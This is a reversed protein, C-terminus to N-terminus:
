NFVIIASSPTNKKIKVRIKDLKPNILGRNFNLSFESIVCIFILLSLFGITKRHQFTFNPIANTVKTAWDNRYAQETRKSIKKSFSLAAPLATMSFVFIIMSACSALSAYERVPVLETVALAGFGIATTLATFFIPQLLNEITGLAADKGELGNSRLNYFENMVHVSVGMGIIMLTPALATTMPTFAYGAAAQIGTTIAICSAIVVWPYVMGGISRFTLFLIGIMILAMTPNIWAQDRKSLTEFREGFVQVGALHLNFGREKFGQEKIFNMLDTVVKVKHENDNMRYETRAVIRTHRLDSSVLTDIALKEDKIIERAEDLLKPNASLDDLDEFLDDTVLMGNKNHTYQYKSLSRVQTVIEHDELMESILGIM